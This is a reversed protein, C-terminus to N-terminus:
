SVGLEGNIIWFDATGINDACTGMIEEGVCLLIETGAGLDM